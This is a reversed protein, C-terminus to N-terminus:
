KVEENCPVLNHQHLKSCVEENQIIYKIKSLLKLTKSKKKLLHNHKHGGETFIYLSSM